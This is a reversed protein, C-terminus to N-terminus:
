YGRLVKERLKRPVQAYQAPTMSALAAGLDDTEMQELDSFSKVGNGGSAVGASSKAKEATKIMRHLNEPTEASGSKAKKRGFDPHLKAIEYALEVPNFEPHNAALGLSMILPTFKKDKALEEVLKLADDYDPHSKKFDVELNDIREKYSRAKDSEEKRKLADSDQKKRDQEKAKQLVAKIDRVSLLDDDERGKLPDEDDVEEPEPDEKAAKKGFKDKTLVYDREAEAKIRREREQRLDYLIGKTSPKLSKFREPDDKEMRELDDVTLDKESKAPEAKQEPAEEAGEDLVDDDKLGEESKSVLASSEGTLDEVQPQKAAKPDAKKGEDLPFGVQNLFEQEDQGTIPAEKEMAGKEM